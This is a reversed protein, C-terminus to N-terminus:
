GRRTARGYRRGQEASVSREILQGARRGDIEVAMGSLASRLAQASVQGGGGSSASGGFRYASAQAATPTTILPCM